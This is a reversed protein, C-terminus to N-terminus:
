PQTHTHTHAHTRTHACKHKHNELCRTATYVLDQLMSSLGEDNSFQLGEPAPGVDPVNQQGGGCYTGLYRKWQVCGLLFYVFLSVSISCAALSKLTLGSTGKHLSLRRGIM